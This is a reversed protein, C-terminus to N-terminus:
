HRLLSKVDIVERKGLTKYYVWIEVDVYINDKFDKALNLLGIREEKPIMSIHFYDKSTSKIQILKIRPVNSINKIAIIDIPSKSAPTRWAYWGNNRLEELAKREYYYGRRYFSVM